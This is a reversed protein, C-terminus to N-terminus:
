GIYEITIFGRNFSTSDYATSDFVGSTTRWLVIDSASAQILAAGDNNFSNVIVGGDDRILATMTRISTSLLGHSVTVSATSDMNWDGISIIKTNLGAIATDIYSKIAKQSALRTNSNAILTVDTDIVKTYGINDFHTTAGSTKTTSTADIGTIVIEATVATADLTVSGIKATYTTPNTTGNSYASLTSLATGDRDYTKVDVKNLTTISSSKYIFGIDLTSGATVDFRESTATGAGNGGSLFKLSNVGHASDLKDIEITASALEVLSWNDSKNNNDADIEFSGNFSDTLTSATSTPETLIVWASGDYQLEVLGKGTLTAISGILLNFSGLATRLVSIRKGKYLGSTPLTVTRNATLVTAYQQIGFDFGAITYDANGRDPSMYNDTDVRKWRGNATDDPNFIINLDEVTTTDSSDLWFLGGGGDGATSYGLLYIYTEAVTATALAQLAAVNTLVEVKKGFRTRLTEANEYILGAADIKTVLTNVGSRTQTATGTGLLLDELGALAKTVIRNVPM